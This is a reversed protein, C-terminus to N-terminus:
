ADAARRRSRLTAVAVGLVGMGAFLLLYGSGDGAVVYDGEPREPVVVALLGVWGLAFPLRAWWGAPLALTTAAVTALGLLMGWGYAHLAVTCLSEVAGLLACPVVLAARPVRPM